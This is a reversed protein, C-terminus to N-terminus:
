VSWYSFRNVKFAEKFGSVITKLVPQIDFGLLEQFLKAILSNGGQFAVILDDLILLAALIGAAPFFVLGLATAFGSTGITAIGFAVGTALIFPALRKLANVLDVVLEVTAEM